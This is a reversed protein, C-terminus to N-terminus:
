SWELSVFESIGAVLLEEYARCIMDMRWYAQFVEIPIHTENYYYSVLTLLTELQSRISSANELVGLWDARYALYKRQDELCTSSAYIAGKKVENSPLDLNRARCLLEAVEDALERALIINDFELNNPEYKAFLAVLHERVGAFVSSAPVHIRFMTSIM